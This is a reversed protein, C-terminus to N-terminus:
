VLGGGGAFIYDVTATNSHSNQSVAGIYPTLATAATTAAATSGAFRDDVYLAMNAASDLEVRYIHFSSDKAFKAANEDTAAVGVGAASVVSNKVSNMGLFNGVAGAAASNFLALSTPLSSYFLGAFEVLGTTVVSSAGVIIARGSTATIANAFGIAFDGDTATTTGVFKARTEFVLPANPLVASTSPAWSVSTGAVEEANATTAGSVGTIVGGATAATYVFIAKGGGAGTETTTFSGQTSVAANDLFHSFVYPTRSFPYGGGVFRMSKGKVEIFNGRDNVGREIGDTAAM